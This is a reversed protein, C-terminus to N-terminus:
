QSKKERRHSLIRKDVWMIAGIISYILGLAIFLFKLTASWAAITPWPNMVGNLLLIILSINEVMDLLGALLTGWALPIGMKALFLSRDSLVEGSWVCAMAITPAYLFIFLFDLGLSLAAMNKADEYWSDLVSTAQNVSGAFEYSIIGLPAEDTTLPKGLLNLAVMTLLTLILFPLFLKNRLEKM